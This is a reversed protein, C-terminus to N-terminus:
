KEVPRDLSDDSRNADWSGSTNLNDLGCSLLSTGSSCSVVKVGRVEAEVKDTLVPLKM